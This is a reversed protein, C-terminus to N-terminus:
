VMRKCKASVNQVAAPWRVNLTMMLPCCTRVLKSISAVAPAAFLATTSCNAMGASALPLIVRCNLVTLSLAWTLPMSINDYPGGVDAGVLCHVTQHTGVTAHGGPSRSTTNAM